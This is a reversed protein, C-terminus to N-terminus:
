NSYTFEKRLHFDWNKECILSDTESDYVELHIDHAQSVTSSEQEGSDSADGNGSAQITEVRIANGLQSILKQIVSDLETGDKISLRATYMSNNCLMLSSKIDTQNRIVDFLKQKYAEWDDNWSAYAPDDRHDALGYSEVLLKGIYDTVKRGGSMNLHSAPDALDIDWDIIDMENMNYYPVCLEKALIVATNEEIQEGESAPFPVTMLVPQIGHERSLSVFARIYDLGITNSSLKATTRPVIAPQSVNKPLWAGKTTSLPMYLIADWAKEVTMEKWRNHFLSYPIIYSLRQSIDPFLDKLSDYKERTLPIIDLAYHLSDLQESIKSNSSLYLTDLFVLKPKHYHIANKFIHYSSPIMAGSVALNYSSLGWDHWLQMPYLSCGVHSSGLFLVDYETKDKYFKYPVDGNENYNYRYNLALSAFKLMGATLCLTLAVAAIRYLIQKM